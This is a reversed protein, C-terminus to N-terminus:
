RKGYKKKLFRIDEGHMQKFLENLSSKAKYEKGLSSKRYTIYELRGDPLIHAHSKSGVRKLARNIDSTKEKKTM